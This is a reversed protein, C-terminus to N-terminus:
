SASNESKAFLELLLQKPKVVNMHLGLEKKGFGMSLGLLQTLYLVPLGFDTGSGSSISTFPCAFLQQEVVEEDSGDRWYRNM